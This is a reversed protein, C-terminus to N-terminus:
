LPFASRFPRGLFLGDSLTVAGRTDLLRDAGAEDAVVGLADIEYSVTYQQDTFRLAGDLDTHLVGQLVAPAVSAYDTFRAAYAAAAAETPHALGFGLTKGALWAEPDGGVASLEAAECDGEARLVAAGADSLEWAALITPVEASWEVPAALSPDLVLVCQGRRAAFDDAWRRAETFHLRLAETVGPVDGHAGRVLGLAWTVQLQDVVYDYELPSGTDAGDGGHGEGGEAGSDAAAEAKSPESAADVCGVAWGLLVGTCWRM